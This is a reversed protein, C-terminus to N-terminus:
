VHFIKILRDSTSIKLIKKGLLKNEDTAPQNYYRKCMGNCARLQFNLCCSFAFNLFLHFFCPPRRVITSSTWFNWWYYHLLEKNLLPATRVDINEMLITTNNKYYECSMFLADLKYISILENSQFMNTGYFLFNKRLTHLIVNCM